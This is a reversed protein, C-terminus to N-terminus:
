EFNAKLYRFWSLKNLFYSRDIKKLILKEIYKNIKSYNNYLYSYHDTNLLELFIGKKPAIILNDCGLAISLPGSTGLLETHGFIAIRSQFHLKPIENDDINTKL